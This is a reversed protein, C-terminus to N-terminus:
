QAFEAIYSNSCYKHQSAKGAITARSPQVQSGLDGVGPSQCRCCIEDGFDMDVDMDRFQSSISSLDVFCLKCQKNILLLQYLYICVCFDFIHILM